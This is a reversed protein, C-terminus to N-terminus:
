RRPFDPKSGVFTRNAVGQFRPDPIPLESRDQAAASPGEQARLRPPTKVTAALYGLTAGLAVAILGPFRWRNM